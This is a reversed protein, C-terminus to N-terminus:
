TQSGGPISSSSHDGSKTATTSMTCQASCIKNSHFSLRPSTGYYDLIRFWFWPSIASIIPWAYVHHLCFCHELTCSVVREHRRRTDCCQGSKGDPGAPLCTANKHRSHTGGM